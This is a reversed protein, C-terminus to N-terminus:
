GGTPLIALPKAGPPLYDRLLKEFRPEGRVFDWEPSFRMEAHGLEWKPLKQKLAAEAGALVADKKRLRLLLGFNEVDMTVGSLGAMTQYRAL